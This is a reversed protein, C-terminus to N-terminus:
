QETQDIVDTGPPIEFSFLAAAIPPDLRIDTFQIVTQQGFRDALMLRVLKNSELGLVIDQFDSQANKPKLGVLIQKGLRERISLHYNDLATASGVLLGAPTQELAGDASRVTIQELEVDHLWIRTGDSVLVREMPPAYHWRFKDPRQMWFEGSGEELVVGEEDVLQQVFRASYRTASDLFAQIAQRAELTESNEAHVAGPLGCLLVTVAISLKLALM